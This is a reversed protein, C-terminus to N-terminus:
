SLPTEVRLINFFYHRLTDKVYLCQRECVFAIFFVGFFRTVIKGIACSFAPTHPHQVLFLELDTIYSGGFDTAPRDDFVSVSKTSCKVVRSVDV